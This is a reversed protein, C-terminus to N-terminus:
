YHLYFDIITIIVLFFGEIIEMKKKYMEFRTKSNKVFLFIIYHYLM